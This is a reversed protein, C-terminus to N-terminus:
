KVKFDFLIAGTQKEPADDKPTFKVTKAAQKACSCYPEGLTTANLGDQKLVCDAEKVYGNRDVKIRVVVKQSSSFKCSASIKGDPKRGGGMRYDGNGSTGLGKGLPDGEKNGDKEGENGDKNNNGNDSNKSDKQFSWDKNLEKKTEEVKKTNQPTTKETTTPKTTTNVQPADEYEQTEFSEETPPTSAETQESSFQTPDDTRGADPEGMAVMIGEEPPLPDPYKFGFVFLIVAIGAAVFFTFAISIYKREKEEKKEEQTRILSLSM